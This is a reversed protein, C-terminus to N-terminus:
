YNEKRQVKIQGRIQLFLFVLPILLLLITGCCLWVYAGSVVITDIFEIRDLILNPDGGEEDSFGDERGPTLRPDPTPQPLPPPESDTSLAPEASTEPGTPTATAATQQPQTEVPTQEAPTQPEPPQETPPQQEPPQAPPPEAPPPQAPTQEVPPPQPLPPQVPPPSAPSQFLIGAVANNNTIALTITIAGLWLLVLRRAEPKIIFFAILSKLSQIM